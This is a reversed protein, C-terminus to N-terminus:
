TDRLHLASRSITVLPLPEAGFPLQNIEPYAYPVSPTMCLLGEQTQRRMEKGLNYEKGGGM